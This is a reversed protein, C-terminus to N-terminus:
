RARKRGGIIEDADASTVEPPVQLYRLTDALIASVAPASVTGGYYRGGSPKHLSVLVVARPQGAPAGGVFSGTYARPEYGRGDTRAVQATGTKGFVRYGPVRANKGTGIDSMVVEVLAEERFRAVTAPSMVQRVVIPQSNDLLTEGDPAMVGRLIRPQYLVGGNAFVSFAAVVQIATIGIEQGIPISHTSYGTWQSLEQLLGDHEGPLGLGTKRGYGFDRVYRYLRENGLRGGLMAMGINSSRSIVEHFPLEGHQHTDRITRRGFRRERGNIAFVENLRTVGEDLAPGAIFPKFISGPEYAFSIARNMLRETAKEKTIGPPIPRAPDFAPVTAMALVEGSQPDIVVAVGWEAKFKEVAERLHLEAREQIYADITLVVTAGDVPPIYDAAHARLGRRRVDVMRVRRGPRGTLHKDFALEAGGLGRAVGEVPDGVFGLVHAALSGQPYTRVSEWQVGFAQLRRGRQVQRFAELESDSILRKLWVFRREAQEALMQELEPASLGLVPAVSYAAYSRSDADGLLAPDVFVSPRTESGALLRGQTDLIEGREAPIRLEVTQQREAAARLASGDVHEVYALRGAGAALALGVLVFVVRMLGARM